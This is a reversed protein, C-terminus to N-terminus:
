VVKSVLLIIRFSNTYYDSYQVHLRIFHIKDHFIDGVVGYLLVNLSESLLLLMFRSFKMHIWISHKKMKCELLTHQHVLDVVWFVLAKPFHSLLVYFHFIGTMFSCHLNVKFLITSPKPSQLHFYIYVYLSCLINDSCLSNILTFCCHSVGAAICM